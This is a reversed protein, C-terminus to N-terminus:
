PQWRVSSRPSSGPRTILVQGASSSRAQHAFAYSVGAIVWCRFQPNDQTLWTILRKPAQPPPLYYWDDRQYLRFGQRSM